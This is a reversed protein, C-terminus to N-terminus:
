KEIIKSYEGEEMTIQKEKVEGEIRERFNKFYLVKERKKRALNSREEFEEKSENELMLNLRKVKKFQRNHSWQILYMGEKRGKERGENESKEIREEERRMRGANERSTIREGEIKMRRGEEKQMNIGGEEKRKKAIEEGREKRKIEGRGEESERSEEEFEAEEYDMIFCERWRIEGDPERWRSFGRLAGFNHPKKKEFLSFEDFNEMPEVKMNTLYPIRAGSWVNGDEDRREDKKMMRVRSEEEKEKDDERREGGEERRRRGENEKRKGEEMIGGGGKESIKSFPSFNSINQKAPHMTLSFFDLQRAFKKDASKKDSSLKLGANLFYNEHTETQHLGSKM